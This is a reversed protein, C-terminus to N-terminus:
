AERECAGGWMGMDENAAEVPDEWSEVGPGRVTVEVEANERALSAAEEEDVMMIERYRAACRREWEARDM